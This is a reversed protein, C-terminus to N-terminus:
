KKGTYKNTFAEVMEEPTSKIYWKGISLPCNKQHFFVPEPIEGEVPWAAVCYIPGKCFPCYEALQYGIEVEEKKRWFM